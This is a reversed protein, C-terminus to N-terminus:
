ELWQGIYAAWNAMFKEQGEAIVFKVNSQDDGIHQWIKSYGGGFFQGQIVVTNKFKLFYDDPSIRCNILILSLEKNASVINKWYQFTNQDMGSFILIRCTRLIEQCEEPLSNKGVVLLSIDEKKLVLMKRVEHGYFNGLTKKDPCILAMKSTGDGIRIIDRKIVKVSPNLSLMCGVLYFCSTLVSAFISASLATYFKGLKKVKIRTMLLINLWVIPLIWNWWVGSGNFWIALGFGLWLAFGWRSFYFGCIPLFSILVWFWAFIYLWREMWNMQVLWTLHSNLLHNFKLKQGLPEFWQEYADAANIWGQPAASMMAPVYSWIELRRGASQDPALDLQVLRSSKPFLIKGGVFGLSFIFIILLFTPILEKKNLLIGLLFYSSLGAALGVLAGRSATGILLAVLIIETPILFWLTIKGLRFFIPLSLIVCLIFVGLDNPNLNFFSLRSDSLIM